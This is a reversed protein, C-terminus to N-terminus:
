ELTRSKREGTDKRGLAKTQPSERFHPTLSIV